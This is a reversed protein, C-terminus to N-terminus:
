VAVLENHQLFVVYSVGVCGILQEAQLRNRETLPNLPIKDRDASPLSLGAWRLKTISSRPLKTSPAQLKGKRRSGTLRSRITFRRGGSAWGNRPKWSTAAPKRSCRSSPTANWAKWCLLVRIGPRMARRHVSPC